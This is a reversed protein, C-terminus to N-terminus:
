CCPEGSGNQVTKGGERALSVRFDRLENFKVQYHNQSLDIDRVIEDLDGVEKKFYQIIRNEIILM